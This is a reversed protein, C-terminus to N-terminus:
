SRLLRSCTSTYQWDWEKPKRRPLLGSIPPTCRVDISVVRVIHLYTSESLQQLVRNWVKRYAFYWTLSVERVGERGFKGRLENEVTNFYLRACLGSFSNSPWVFLSSGRLSSLKSLDSFNKLESVPRM